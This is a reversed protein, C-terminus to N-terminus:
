KSERKRRYSELLSASISARQEDTMKRNRKGSAWVQKIRRSHEARFEPTHKWGGMTGHVVKDQSNQTPTGYSLNDLRNNRPNRDPFHRCVMGPPCPGIFAALVLRHVACCKSKGNLSLCVTPYRMNRTQTLIKEVVPQVCRVGFQNIHVSERVLSKVRGLSSVEFVGEFGVIPRWEESSTSHEKPMVEPELVPTTNLAPRM